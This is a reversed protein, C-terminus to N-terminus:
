LCRLEPSHPTSEVCNHSALRSDYRCILTLRKLNTLLMLSSGVMPQLRLLLPLTQRWVASLHQSVLATDAPRRSRPCLTTCSAIGAASLASSEPLRRHLPDMLKPAGLSVPSVPHWHSMPLLGRGMIEMVHQLSATADWVLEICTGLKADSSVM